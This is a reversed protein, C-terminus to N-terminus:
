PAKATRLVVGMKLNFIFVYFFVFNEKVFRGYNVIINEFFHLLTIVGEMQAIYNSTIDSLLIMDRFVEVSNLNKATQVVFNM